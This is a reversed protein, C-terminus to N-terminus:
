HLQDPEDTKIGLAKQLERLRLTKTTTTFMNAEMEKELDENLKETKMYNFEAAPQAGDHTSIDVSNLYHQYQEKKMSSLEARAEKLAALETILTKVEQEAELYKNAHDAGAEIHPTKQTLNVEPGQKNM